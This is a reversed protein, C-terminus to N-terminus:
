AKPRQSRAQLHAAVALDPHEECWAFAEDRGIARATSQGCTPCKSEIVGAGASQTARHAAYAQDRPSLQYWIARLLADPVRYKDRSRGIREAMVMAVWKPLLQAARARLWTQTKM